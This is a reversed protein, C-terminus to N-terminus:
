GGITLTKYFFYIATILMTIILGYYSIGVSWPIKESDFFYKNIKRM